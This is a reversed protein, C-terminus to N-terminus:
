RSCALAVTIATLHKLQMDRAQRTHTANYRQIQHQHREYPSSATTDPRVTQDLTFKSKHWKWKLVRGNDIGGANDDGEGLDEWNHALSSDLGCEGKQREQFSSCHRQSNPLHVPLNWCQQLLQLPSWKLILPGKWWKERRSPIAPSPVSQCFQGPSPETFLTFLTSAKGLQSHPSGSLASAQKPRIKSGQTVTGINREKAGRAGTQWTESKRKSWNWNSNHLWGSRGATFYTIEPTWSSKSVNAIASLYAEDLMRDVELCGQQQNM